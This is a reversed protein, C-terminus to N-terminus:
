RIWDFLLCTQLYSYIFPMIYSNPFIKVYKQWSSNMAGKICGISESNIILAYYAWCIM